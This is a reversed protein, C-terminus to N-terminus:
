TINGYKLNFRNINIILGKNDDNFNILTELKCINKFYGLTNFCIINENKNCIEIMEDISKNPIYDIDDGFHDLSKLLIYNDNIKNFKQIMNNENQKIFDNQEITNFQNMNNLQYANKKANDFRESTLRGTHISTIENWFASKYGNDYYYITPQM